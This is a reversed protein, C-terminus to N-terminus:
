VTLAACDRIRERGDCGFSDGALVRRARARGFVFIIVIAAEERRLVCMARISGCRFGTVTYHVDSMPRVGERGGKVDVAFFLGTDCWAMYVDAFPIKGEVGTLDPVLYTAEWDNLVGDIVPVDARFVCPFAVQFFARKPIGINM